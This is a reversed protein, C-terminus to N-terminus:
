RADVAPAKKLLDQAKDKVDKPYILVCQKGPPCTRGEASTASTASTAAPSSSTAPPKAAAAAEPEGEFRYTGTTLDIKLLPGEAVEKGRVVVVGGGLLATNAKVDFNAWDATASQDDKSTILVKRKAEIRVIEGQGKGGADPNGLGFGAQGSYFATMEVTRIVLDGQQAKVNGSFVAKKGAEYLDMTAAEVEMPATPDTKFSGFLAQQAALDPTPKPRAKPAQAGAQHFTAAIRGPPQNGDAPTELRSKGAKREVFLRGGSLVNKDQTVVVNGVFLATDATVDFDALDSTVRRDDGMTIEAGNRAWLFTVRAGQSNNATQEPASSLAAAAKGEYKVFLYPTSLMTDGQRAVVKSRFHATKATDDVDLEEAYVDLPQRADRGSGIAAQASPLMRVAVAGRFQALHTKTNMTMAAAQVSGTPMNASVPHNSVLRNEKSYLTARSLSAMLGNTADVEIGDFLELEGKANDFLGHKAKLKTTVKNTQVLDGGIDVLKIPTSQNFAVVARKARVRYHGGDSTVGFYSPEKMTLDDATIEVASARLRGASFQWNVALVLAYLTLVGLAALPMVVRLLRVLRSHSRAAAFARAREAMNAVAASGPHGLGLADSTEVTVAM